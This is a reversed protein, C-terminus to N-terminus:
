KAKVKFSKSSSAIIFGNFVDTDDDALPVVQCGQLPIQRHLAYAGLATKEGYLLEDSFLWFQFEKYRRRFFTVNLMILLSYIFTYQHASVSM